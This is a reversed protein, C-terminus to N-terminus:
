TIFIRYFIHRNPLMVYRFVLLVLFNSFIANCKHCVCKECNSMRYARVDILTINELKGLVLGNQFYANFSIDDTIILATATKIAFTASTVFDPYRKLFVILLLEKSIDVCSISWVCLKCM